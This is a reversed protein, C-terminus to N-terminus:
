FLAIWASDFGTSSASTSRDIWERDSPRSASTSTPGRLRFTREVDSDDILQVLKDHAAVGHSRAEHDDLHRMSEEHLSRLVPLVVTARDERAACLAACIPELTQLSSRLDMLDAGRLRLILGLTYAAEDATPWYVVSGGVNRRKVTILGENELTRLAERM